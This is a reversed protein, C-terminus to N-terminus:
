KVINCSSGKYHIENSFTDLILINKKVELKQIIEIVANINRLNDILYFPSVIIVNMEDTMLARILSICFIEYTNCQHLRKFAIDELEIKKLFAKAEEQAQQTPMHKHVEKILAINELM